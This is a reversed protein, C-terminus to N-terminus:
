QKGDNKITTIAKSKATNLLDDTKKMVTAHIKDATSHAKAKEEKHIKNLKNLLSMNSPRPVM